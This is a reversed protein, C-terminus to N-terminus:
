RSAQSGPALTTGARFSPTASPFFNGRVAARDQKRPGPCARIVDGSKPARQNTRRIHMMLDQMRKKKKSRCSLTGRVLIVLLMVVDNWETGYRKRM